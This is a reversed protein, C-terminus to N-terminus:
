QKNAPLPPRTFLYFLLGFFPIYKVASSTLISDHSRRRADDDILWGQFLSYYVADVVFAITLRDHSASESFSTIRQNIDGFETRGLVAWAISVLGVSGFLLPLIKSEGVEEVASLDEVQVAARSVEESDRCFLYPLYIANTLFQMGVLSSLFENKGTKRKGDVIFGAFLGSWALVLNFLGETVPHQVPASDPFFIPLILWFNLSLDKVLQWTATDLQLANVGPAITSLFLYWCYFLWAVFPVARIPESIFGKALKLLALGASGTKAFPEPVDFGKLIKGSKSITYMSSGRTFPLQKSDSEVHWQVGVKGNQTDEAIDDIVFSFSEPLSVAVNLLHSKIANQGRFTGPYLTDEYECDVDFLDAASDMDRKNWHSFYLEITQKPSIIKAPPMNSYKGGYIMHITGRNVFRCQACAIMAVFVLIVNYSLLKMTQETLM